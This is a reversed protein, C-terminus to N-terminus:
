NYESDDSFSETVVEINIGKFDLLNPNELNKVGDEDLYDLTFSVDKGVNEDLLNKLYEMGEESSMKNYAVKSPLMIKLHGESDISPYGGKLFSKSIADADNVIKSWNQVVKQLDEPLAKPLEVKKVVASEDTMNDNAARMMPAQVTIGNAVKEELVRIRNIISENDHEMEPKCLKILAMEILVRKQAAYKMENSLASFVRIYRLLVTADANEAEELLNALNESSIDLIDESRDSTKAVLLNRLYWIFDIVFQFLDRGTMVADELIRICGIVDQAEIARFLASFVTTDVTGLVNLVNDYTLSVGYNFAICQDLLSLADRMSGDAVKAIYRLARPEVDVGEISTLEELRDAITDITIRKFDYRQCRSLITIPLKQPDTTALIFVCYSPPEELTKLLANCANNTMMHVEDIIYVRYKADAPPFAVTDIIERVDEVGNNSAADMEVVSMNAGAAISKCCNCEGCPNGDTPNECNIAKALLKAVTTKGTGRTGCFLYAHGIRDAQIQNKLTTVIHEQGKVDGFNDPRFKRYLAVYSM